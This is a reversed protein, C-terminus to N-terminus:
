GCVGGRERLCRLRLHTRQSLVPVPSATHFVKKRDSGRHHRVACGNADFDSNTCEGTMRRICFRCRLSVMLTNRVLKWSNYERLRFDLARIIIFDSCASFILVIIYRLVILLKFALSTLIIYFVETTEQLRKIRHTNKLDSFGFTLDYVNSFLIEFM